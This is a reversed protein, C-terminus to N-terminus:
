RTAFQRLVWDNCSPSPASKESHRFRFKLKFRPNSVLLNSSTFYFFITRKIELGSHKLHVTSKQINWFYSKVYVTSFFQKNSNKKVTQSIESDHNQSNINRSLENKNIKRSKLYNPDNESVISSLNFFM